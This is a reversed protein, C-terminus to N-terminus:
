EKSRSTGHNELGHQGTRSASVGLSFGHGGIRTLPEVFALLAMCHQARLSAVAAHEAGVRRHRTRGHLLGALRRTAAPRSAATVRGERTRFAKGGVCACLAIFLDVLLAQLAVRRHHEAQVALAAARRRSADRPAKLDCCGRRLPEADKLAERLSQAPRATRTQPRHITGGPRRLMRSGPRRVPDAGPRCAQTAPGFSM